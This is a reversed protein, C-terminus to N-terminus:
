KKELEQAAEKTMGSVRLSQEALFQLASPSMNGTLESPMVGDFELVSLSIITAFVFLAPKESEIIAQLMVRERTSMEKVTYREGLYEVIETKYTKSYDKRRFLNLM